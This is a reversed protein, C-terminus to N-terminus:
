ASLPRIKSVPSGSDNKLGFVGGPAFADVELRALDVHVSFAWTLLHGVGVVVGLRSGREEQKGVM